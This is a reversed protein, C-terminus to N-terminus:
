KMYGFSDKLIERMALKEESTSTHWKSVPGDFVPVKDLQGMHKAKFEQLTCRLSQLLKIRNDSRSLM